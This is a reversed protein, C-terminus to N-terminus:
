TQKLLDITKLAIESLIKDIRPRKLPDTQLCLKILAILDHSYGMDEFQLENEM